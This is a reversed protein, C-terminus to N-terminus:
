IQRKRHLSKRFVRYKRGTDKRYNRGVRYGLFELPEEPVRLCRTKRANVPLRLREMMREVAARMAEAPARVCVVFDDAYNAIEAGFRRAHGLGTHLPAHLHQQAPALDARGEAGSAGPERPAQRGTRRGGGRGNGAM